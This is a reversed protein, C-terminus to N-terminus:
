ITSQSLYYSITNVWAKNGKENFHLGDLTCDFEHSSKGCSMDRPNFMDVYIFGYKKSKSVKQYIERTRLARHKIYLNYPFVFIDARWMMGTHTILVKNSKKKLEVVLKELNRKIDQFSTTGMIDNGGVIAVIADYRKNIKRAMKYIGKLNKGSEGMVDVNVKLKYSLIYPITNNCNKMGYGIVTSDGILLINKSYYPNWIKLKEKPCSYQLISKSYQIKNLFRITQIFLILLIFILIIYIINIKLM